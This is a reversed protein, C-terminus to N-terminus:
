FKFNLDAQFLNEVKVLTDKHATTLDSRYYDLDLSVNKSLGLTLLTEHSRVGTRGGYRDSDPFIDLWANTGLMVYMYRLQWQGFTTVKKHGLRMGALYGGTSHDARLNKIYEGFFSLYPVAEVNLARLPDIIELEVAPSIADYDFKLGSKGNNTNSGSRNDLIAGEVQQFDYYTAAANLSIQDTMKVKVGGQAAAMTPEGAAANEDLVFFATNLYTNVNDNVKGSFKGAIGEPNIDTDWLMDGPEWLPNKMRGGLLTAWGKPMYEAYAYDLRIDKLEFSNEFSQNTSRPDAGGTALGFYVKTKDNVKTDAGLRFRIRGRDRQTTAGGNLNSGKRKEYQYRLRFDGKINFNRVFGPLSQKYGEERVVKEDEAIEGKLKIADQQTLIGKDVLKDVLADVSTTAALAPVSVLCMFLLAYLMKKM